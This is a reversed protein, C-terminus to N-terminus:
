SGCKVSAPSSDASTLLSLAADAIMDNSAGATWEMIVEHEQVQKVDVISMIKGM